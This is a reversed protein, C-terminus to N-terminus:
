TRCSNRDCGDGVAGGRGGAREALGRAGASLALLAGEGGEGLPRGSEDLSAAEQEFSPRRPPAAVVGDGEYAGQRRTRHGLHQAGQLLEAQLLPDGRLGGGPPILHQSQDHCPDQRGGRLPGRYPPQRPWRPSGGPRAGQHPVPRPRGRRRGPSAGPVGPSSRATEPLAAGRLPRGPARQGVRPTSPPSLLDGPWVRDNGPQGSPCAASCTRGATRSPRPGTATCTNGPVVASGTGSEECTAGRRSRNERAFTTSTPSRPRGGAARSRSSIASKLSLSRPSIVLSADGPSRRMPHWVGSCASSRARLRWPRSSAVSARSSGIAAAVRCSFRWSVPALFEPLPAALADALVLPGLM